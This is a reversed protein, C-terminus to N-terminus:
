SDGTPTAETATTENSLGTIQAADIVPSGNETYPGDGDPFDYSRDGDTDLHAMAILEQNEEIREDLVIALSTSLDPPVYLSSGIVEGPTENDSRHIAVFGGDSLEVNQVLVSSGSSQQDNFTLDIVRRDGQIIGQASTSANRASVDLTFTTGENPGEASLDLGATWTGNAQVETSEVPIDYPVVADDNSTGGVTVETGAAFTSTGTVPQDDAAQVTVLGDDNTNVSVEGAVFSANTSVVEADFEGDRPAVLGYDFETNFSPALTFEFRYQEGPAFESIDSTDVVLFHTGNEFDSVV